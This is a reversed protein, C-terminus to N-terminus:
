LMDYTQSTAFIYHYFNHSESDGIVLIQSYSNDLEFIDSVRM